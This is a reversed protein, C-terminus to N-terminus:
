WSEEIELSWSDNDTLITTAVGSKGAVSLSHSGAAYTGFTGMQVAGDARAHNPDSVQTFQRCIEWRGIADATDDLYVAHQVLTGTGTNRYSGSFHAILRTADLLKTFVLQDSNGVFQYSTTYNHTGTTWFQTHVEHTLMAPPFTQGGLILWDTALQDVWVTDGVRPVYSGLSPISGIPDTTPAAPDDGILITCLGTTGDVATVAAKRRAV